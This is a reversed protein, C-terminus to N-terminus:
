QTNGRRETWKVVLLSSLPLAVWCWLPLTAPNTGCWLVGSIALWASLRKEALALIAALMCAMVITAMLFGHPRIADEKWPIQSLVYAWALDLVRLPLLYGVLSLLLARRAKARRAALCAFAPLSRALQWYMWRRGREHSEEVLDGYAAESWVAGILWRTLHEM